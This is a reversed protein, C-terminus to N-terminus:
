FPLTFKQSNDCYMRQQFEYFFLPYLATENRSSATLIERNLLSSTESVTRITQKLDFDYNHSRLLTERLTSLAGFHPVVSSLNQFYSAGSRSKIAEYKLDDEHASRCPHLKLILEGNKWGLLALFTKRQLSNFFAHLGDFARFGYNFLWVLFAITNM